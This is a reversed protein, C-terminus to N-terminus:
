LRCPSLQLCCPFLYLGSLLFFINTNIGITNILTCVFPWKPTVRQRQKLICRRVFGNMHFHTGGECGNEPLDFDNENSYSQM